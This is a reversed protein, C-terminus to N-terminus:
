GERKALQFASRTNRVGEAVMGLEAVIDEPSATVVATAMMEGITRRM